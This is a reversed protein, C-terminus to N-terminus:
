PKPYDAYFDEYFEDLPQPNYMVLWNLKSGSSIPLIFEGNECQFPWHAHTYSLVNLDLIYAKLMSDSFGATALITAIKPEGTAIRLQMYLCEQDLQPTCKIKEVLSKFHWILSQIVPNFQLHDPVIEKFAFYHYTLPQFDNEECWGPHSSENIKERVKEELSTLYSEADICKTWDAFLQIASILNNQFLNLELIRKRKTKM